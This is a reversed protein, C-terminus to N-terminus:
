KTDEFESQLARVHDVLKPQQSLRLREATIISKLKAETETLDDNVLVYDYGDWHSIEDWSKEMRLAITDPADQGRTELRRRLEKISPPLIFISLVHQKLTSNSIQQAGQWDVDFLVDRGSDVAKQVPGKPSGYYNNFVRAHELMDGDNVMARFDDEATFFYDKGDEEGVRPARTTASVSFELSTDWDRLKRALTSKGAGSPSSLIILLGRRDSM